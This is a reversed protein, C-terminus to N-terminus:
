KHLARVFFSLVILGLGNFLLEVGLLIGLLQPGVTAFNVAIYGGLLISFAGSILMPWFFPTPKMRWSLAIRVVGNAILLVLVLLALSIVGDLPNFLFSLGLFVLLAGLVINLFKAGGTGDSMMSGAIQFGGSLLFLFGTLTTVALSALVTNGLAFVGFAMSLLGLILWKTWPKM